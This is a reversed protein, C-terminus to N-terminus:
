QYAEVPGSTTARMCRICPSCTISGMPKSENPSGASFAAMSRPTCGASQVLALMSRMRVWNRVMPADHSQDRSTM